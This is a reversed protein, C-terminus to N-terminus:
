IICFRSHVLLAGLRQPPHARIELIKEVIKPEMPPPPHRPVRSKGRLAEQSELPAGRIRKLWKKVWSKSCGVKNAMKQHSWEPHEVWVERLKSRYVIWEEEM